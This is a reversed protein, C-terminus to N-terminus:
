VQAIQDGARGVLKEDNGGIFRAVNRGVVVDASQEAEHGHRGPRQQQHVGIHVPRVICARLNWHRDIGVREVPGPHAVFHPVDALRPM